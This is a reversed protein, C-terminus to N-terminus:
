VRQVPMFYVVKLLPPLRGKFCKSLITNGKHGSHASDASEESFSKGNRENRVTYLKGSDNHLLQRNMIDPIQMQTYALLESFVLPYIKNEQSGEQDEKEIAALYARERNYLSTLCSRHYKLEQAM